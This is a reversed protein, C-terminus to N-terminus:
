LGPGELLRFARLKFGRKRLSGVEHPSVENWFSGSDEWVEWVVPAEEVVGTTYLPVRDPAPESYLLPNTISWNSSTLTADQKAIWAVPLGKGGARSAKECELAKVLASHVVEEFRDATLNWTGVATVVRAIMRLQENLDKM